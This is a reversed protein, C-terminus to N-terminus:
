PTTEEALAMDFRHKTSRLFPQLSDRLIAADDADEFTCDIIRSMRSQDVGQLELVVAFLAASRVAEDFASERSDPRDSTSRRAPAFAALAAGIVSWTPLAAIAVPSLLSAAAVCGLAGALAGAAMWRPKARLSPPLLDSMRRAGGEITEKISTPDSAISKLGEGTLGTLSNIWTERQNDYLRAIAAHLKIMDSHRVDGSWRGARDAILDFARDIRRAAAAPADAASDGLISALEGRTTETLYDLDIERVQDAALGIRQALGRWDRSRESVGDADNQEHFRRGGTLVLTARRRVASAMSHALREVGRDPSNAFDVVMLLHAPIPGRELSALVAHQDDRGDVNGLDRVDAQLPPPWGCAPARLELGVIAPPGTTRDDPGGSAEPLPPHAAPGPEARDPSDDHAAAPMLADRLLAFGPRALDLRYARLARARFALSMALLVARPLLGYVIVSGFFMWSWARRMEQPQPTEITERSARIAVEDPVEFGLAKPGAAVTEILRSYQSESLWTSDWRFEYGQGIFLLALGLLMGLNIAAWAGHTITAVTWKGIRPASLVAGLAEAAAAHARSQHLRAAARRALTLLFSGLAGGRASRGLFLTAIIWVLLMLTQFGLLAAILTFISAIHDALASRAALAGLLICLILGGILGLRVGRSVDALAARLSQAAPTRRAREVIRREFDPGTEAVVAEAIRAAAPPAGAVAEHARVAEALLRDDHPISRRGADSM